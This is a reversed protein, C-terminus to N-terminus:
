ASNFFFIISTNDNSKSLESSPLISLMDTTKSFRWGWSSTCSNFIDPKAPKLNGLQNEFLEINIFRTLNLNFFQLFVLSNGAKPFKTASSFSSIFANLETFCM